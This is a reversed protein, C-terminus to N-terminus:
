WLYLTFNYTDCDSANDDQKYTNYGGTIVRLNESFHRGEVFCQARGYTLKSGIPIFHGAGIVVAIFIVILIKKM